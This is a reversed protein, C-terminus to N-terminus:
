DVWGKISLKLPSNPINCYVDITKHLYGSSKINIIYNIKSSTKQPKKDWNVSTCGCSTEINYIILPAKGTNYIIFSGTLKQGVASKGFEVTSKDTTVTTISENHADTKSTGTIMEKYLQWITPNYIPNGVLLVKNKEDLLFCKYTDSVPFHNWKNIINASDIFIPHNFRCNMALENLSKKENPHSVMIISLKDGFNKEAEDILNSWEPIRTKCKTCGGSDIYLFIKYTKDFYDECITDEGQVMCKLNDPFIIEKGVWEKIITEAEQEQKSKCAFSFVLTSILLLKIFHNQM